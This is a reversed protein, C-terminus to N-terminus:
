LIKHVPILLSNRTTLSLLALWFISLSIFGAESCAVVEVLSCSIGFTESFPYTKRNNGDRTKISHAYTTKTIHRHGQCLIDYNLLSYNDENAPNFPLKILLLIHKGYLTNDCSVSASIDLPLPKM